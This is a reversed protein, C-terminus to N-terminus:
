CTSLQIPLLAKNPVLGIVIHGENKCTMNYDKALLIAVVNWNKKYGWLGSNFICTLTTTKQFGPTFAYQNVTVAAWGIKTENNSERERKRLQVNRWLQKHVHM